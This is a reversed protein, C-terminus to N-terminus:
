GVIDWSNNILLKGLVINVPGPVLNFFLVRPWGMSHFIFQFIPQFRASFYM